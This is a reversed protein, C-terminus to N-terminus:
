LIRKEKKCIDIWQKCCPFYVLVCLLGFIYNIPMSYMFYTGDYFYDIAYSVPIRVAWLMLLNIITPYKVAGIGNLYKTLVSFMAFTWFWPLVIKIYRVAYKLVEPDDTFLSLIQKSFITGVVGSVLM